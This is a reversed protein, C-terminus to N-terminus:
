KTKPMGKELCNYFCTELKAKIRSIRIRLAILTIGMRVAIKQRAERNTQEGHEWYEIILASDTAPLQKLCYYFCADRQKQLISTPLVFPEVPLDDFTVRRADPRKLHEMWVWHALGHCFRLVDRVEEGEAIKKALRNMTEDTLEEAYFCARSRFYEQLKLRLLEYEEGAQERDPHLRSLLKEFAEPTPPPTAM